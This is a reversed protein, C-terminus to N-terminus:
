HMKTLQDINTKTTLSFLIMFFRSHYTKLIYLCAFYFIALSNLSGYELIIFVSYLTDLTTFVLGSSRKLHCLFCYKFPREERVTSGEDAKEIEAKDM